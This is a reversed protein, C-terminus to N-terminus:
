NGRFRMVYEYYRPFDSKTLEAVIEFLNKNQPYLRDVDDWPIFRYSSEDTHFSKYVQIAGALAGISFVIVGIATASESKTYLGFVAAAMGPNILYRNINRDNNKLYNLNAGAYYTLGAKSIIGGFNIRSLNANIDTSSPVHAKIGIYQSWNPHIHISTYGPPATARVALLNGARVECRNNTLENFSKERYLDMKMLTRAMGLTLAYDFTRSEDFPLNAGAYEVISEHPIAIIKHPM